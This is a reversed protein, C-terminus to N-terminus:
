LSIAKNDELDKRREMGLSFIVECLKKQLSIM